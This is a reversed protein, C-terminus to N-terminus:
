PRARHPRSPNSRGNRPVVRSRATGAPHTREGTPRGWTTPISRNRPCPRSEGRSLRERSVSSHDPLTWGTGTPEVDEGMLISLILLVEAPDDIYERCHKCKHAGPRLAGGCYPCPLGDLISAPDGAVQATNTM